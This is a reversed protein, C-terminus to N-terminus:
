QQLLTEASNSLQTLQDTGMVQPLSRVKYFEKLDTIRIDSFPICLWPMGRTFKKYDDETKEMAVFM